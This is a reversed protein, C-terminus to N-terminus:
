IRISAVQLHELNAILAHMKSSLSSDDNQVSKVVNVRSKMHVTPTKFGGVVCTVTLM